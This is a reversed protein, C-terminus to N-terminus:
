IRTVGDTLDVTVTHSTGPVTAFGPRLTQVVASPITLASTIKLSPAKIVAVTSPRVATCNHSSSLTETCSRLVREIWPTLWLQIFKHKKFM